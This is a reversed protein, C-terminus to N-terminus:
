DRIGPFPTWRSLSHAGMPKWAPHLCGNAELHSVFVWKESFSICVFLGCGVYLVFM